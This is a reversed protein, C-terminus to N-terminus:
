FRKHKLIAFYKKPFESTANKKICGTYHVGQVPIPLYWSKPCKAQYISYQIINKIITHKWFSPIKEKFTKRQRLYLLAYLAICYICYHMCYHTGCKLGMDTGCKLGMDTGCKLGMDTGCKLGMDTGGKLGM